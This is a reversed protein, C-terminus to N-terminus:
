TGCLKLFLNLVNERELRWSFFFFFFVFFTCDLGWILRESLFSHVDCSLALPYAHFLVQNLEGIKDAVLDFYIGINCTPNDELKIRICTISEYALEPSELAAQFLPYYFVHYLYVHAPDTLNHAMDLALHLVRM